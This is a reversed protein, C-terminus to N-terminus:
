RRRTGVSSERARSEREADHGTQPQVSADFGRSAGIRVEGPRLISRLAVCWCPSRAVGLAQAGQEDNLHGEAATFLM